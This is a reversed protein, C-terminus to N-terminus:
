LIIIGLGDPGTLKKTSLGQLLERIKHKDVEARNGTLKESLRLLLASGMSHLVNIFFENPLTSKEGNTAAIEDGLLMKPPLSSTKKIAGLYKQIESFRRSKFVKAEFAKKDELSAESIKKEAKANKLELKM